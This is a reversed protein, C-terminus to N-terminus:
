PMGARAEPILGSWYSGAEAALPIAVGDALDGEEGLIVSCQQSAPAWARFHAGGAAQVEAGVPLRRYLANSQSNHSM